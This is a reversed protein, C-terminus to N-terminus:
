MSWPVSTVRSIDIQAMTTADTTPSAIPRTLADLIRTGFADDTGIHIEDAARRRQHLDEQHIEGQGANPQIKMMRSRRQPRANLEAPKMASIMRAPRCDIGPLGLRSQRDCDSRRIVGGSVLSTIVSTLLEDRSDTM